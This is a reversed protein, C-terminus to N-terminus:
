FGGHRVGVSEDLGSASNQTTGTKEIRITAKGPVPQDTEDLRPTICENAAEDDPTRQVNQDDGGAPQYCCRPSGEEAEDDREGM